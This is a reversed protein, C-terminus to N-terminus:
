AWVIGQELETEERHQSSSYMRQPSSDPSMSIKLLAAPNWLYLYKVQVTGDLAVPLANSNSFYTCIICM